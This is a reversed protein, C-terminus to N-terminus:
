ENQLYSKAIRGDAGKPYFGGPVHEDGSGYVIRLIEEPTRDYAVSYEDGALVNGSIKGEAGLYKPVVLGEDKLGAKGLKNRLDSLRNTFEAVSIDYPHVKMWAQEYLLTRIVADQGSEVGLLGAVLRKSTSGQLKPNAGVYGTLGVYPILYSALLYNLSNAYPDFPPKLVRGFALNFVDAFSKASLDLQPRPFGKVTKKIARLHGVEQWAFQEIVDRTFPDLKAKKAGLPKPGGLTLNPAVKDLGFGLSGYLFFEAELYELNLPFELLDVDSDPVPSSELGHEDSLISESSYLLLLILFALTATTSTHAFHAM